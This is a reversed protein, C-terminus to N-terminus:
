LRKELFLTEKKLFFTFHRPVQLSFFFFLKPVRSERAVERLRILSSSEEKELQLFACFSPLALFFIGPYYTSTGKVGPPPTM